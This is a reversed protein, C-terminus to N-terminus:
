LDSRGVCQSVSAGACCSMQLVPVAYWRLAASPLAGHWMLTSAGCDLKSCRSVSRLQSWRCRAAIPRPQQTSIRRCRRIWRYCCTRFRPRHAACRREPQLRQVLALSGASSCQLQWESAPAASSRCGSDQVRACKSLASGRAGPASFRSQTDPCVRAHWYIRVGLASACPIGNAGRARLRGGRHSHM